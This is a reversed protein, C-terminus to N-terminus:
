RAPEANPYVIYCDKLTPTGVFESVQACLFNVEQGKTLNAAQPKAEDLLRVTPQDFAEGTLRIVPDDSMDLDVEDVIGSVLMCRDGFKLQAAAENAAYADAITQIKVVENPVYSCVRQDETVAASEVQAPEDEGDCSTLSGFAYLAVIGLVGYGVCGMCSQFSNPGKEVIVTPQGRDETM